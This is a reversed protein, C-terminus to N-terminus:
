AREQLPILFWIVPVPTIFCIDHSRVFHFKQIILTLWVYLIKSAKQSMMRFPSATTRRLKLTPVPQICDCLIGSSPIRVPRTIRHTPCPLFTRMEGIPFGEIKRFASDKLKKAAKRSTRM